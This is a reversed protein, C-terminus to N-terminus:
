RRDRAVRLKRASEARRNEEKRRRAFLIRQTRNITATNCAKYPRVRLISINRVAASCFSAENLSIVKIQAARWKGHHM